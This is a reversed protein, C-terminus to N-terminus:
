TPEPRHGTKTQMRAWHRMDWGFEEDCFSAYASKLAQADSDAPHIKLFQGAM